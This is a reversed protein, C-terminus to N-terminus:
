PLGVEIGILVCYVLCCCFGKCAVCFDNWQEVARKVTLRPGQLLQLIVTSVAKPRTSSTATLEERRVSRLFWGCCLRHRLKSCGDGNRKGDRGRARRSQMRKTWSCACVVRAGDIELFSDCEGVSCARRRQKYVGNATILNSIEACVVHGSARGGFLGRRTVVRLFAREGQGARSGSNRGLAM